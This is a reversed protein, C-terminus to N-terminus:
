DVSDSPTAKEAGKGNRAEKKAEHEDVIEDAVRIALIEIFRLLAQRVKQSDFGKNFGANMHIGWFLFVAPCLGPPQYIDFPSNNADSRLHGQVTVM